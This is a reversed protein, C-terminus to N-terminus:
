SLDGIWENLTRVPLGLETAVHRELRAGRSNEWGPLLAVADALTIRQLAARMYDAWTADPGLRVDAPNIVFHGAGCLVDKADDFAPRNFDPLGSMPGALYIIM